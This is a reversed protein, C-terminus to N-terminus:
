FQFIELLYYDYSQIDISMYGVEINKKLVKDLISDISNEGEIEVTCNIVKIDENIILKKIKRVHVENNEILIGKFSGMRWLNYTNSNTIGDYAGVDVFYKKIPIKSTKFLHKIIGDEGFQSYIKKSYKNLKM